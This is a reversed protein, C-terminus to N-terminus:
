FDLSRITSSLFVVLGGSILLFVGDSLRTRVVLLTNDTNLTLRILGAIMASLGILFTGRRWRDMLILFLGVLQVLVIMIFILDKSLRESHLWARIAKIKGGIPHAALDRDCAM